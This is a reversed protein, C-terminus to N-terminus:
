SGAAVEQGGRRTAAWRCSRQPQRGGCRSRCDLNNYRDIVDAYAATLKAVDTCTTALEDNLHGGFSVAIGGGQKQLRTIRRDLDLSTSAEDLTYATGWTPTCSDSPASVLFSLLVDRGATTAPSEFEFATDCDRRRLRCVLAERIGGM